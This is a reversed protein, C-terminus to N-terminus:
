LFKNVLDITLFFLAYYSIIAMVAAAIDDLMIGFGGKINTDCWSVPWPKIIDFIRFLILPFIIVFVVYINLAAGTLNSVTALCPVTTTVIVLLQGVVEDIVVEKPDERGTYKTYLHSAYTGILFLLLLIVGIVIFFLLPEQTIRYVISGQLKALEIVGKMLVICFPYAAVSGWTGPAFPIKGIGFFTSILNVPHWFKLDRQINEM